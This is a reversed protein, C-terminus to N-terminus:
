GRPAPSYFDDPVGVGPPGPLLFGRSNRRWLYGPSVGPTCPLGPTGRFYEPSGPYGRSVGSYGLYGLTGMPVRPRHRPGPAQAGPGSGQPGGQTDDKTYTRPKLMKRM